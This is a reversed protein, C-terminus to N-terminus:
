FDQLWDADDSPKPLNKLNIPANDENLWDEKSPTPIKPEAPRPEGTIPALIDDISKEVKVAKKQITIEKLSFYKLESPSKILGSFPELTAGAALLYFSEEINILSDMLVPILDAKLLEEFDSSDPTLKSTWRFLLQVKKDIKKLEIQELRGNNKQLLYDKYKINGLLSECDQLLAQLFWKIFPDKAKKIAEKLVKSSNGDVIAKPFRENSKLLTKYIEVKGILFIDEKTLVRAYSDINLVQPLIKEYGVSTGLIDVLLNLEIPMEKSGTIKTLTPEKKEIPFLATSHLLITLTLLLKNM